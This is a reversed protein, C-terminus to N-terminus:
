HQFFSPCTRFFLTSNEFMRRLLFLLWHESSSRLYDIKTPTSHRKEIKEFVDTHHLWCSPHRTDQCIIRSDLHRHQPRLLRTYRSKRCRLACCVAKREWVVVIGWITIVVFTLTLEKESRETEKRDRDFCTQHNGFKIRETQNHNM